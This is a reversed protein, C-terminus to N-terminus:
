ESRNSKRNRRAPVGHHKTGRIDWMGAESSLKIYLRTLDFNAPLGVGSRVNGAAQSLPFSGFLRIFQNPDM